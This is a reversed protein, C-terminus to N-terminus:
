KPTFPGGRFYIVGRMAIGTRRTRGLKQGLWHQLLHLFLTRFYTQTCVTSAVPTADNMGQSVWLWTAEITPCVLTSCKYLM